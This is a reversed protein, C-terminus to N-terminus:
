ICHLIIQGEEAVIRFLIGLKRLSVRSLIVSVNQFVAPNSIRVATAIFTTM